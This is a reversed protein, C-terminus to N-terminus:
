EIGEQLIYSNETIRAGVGPVFGQVEVLKLMGIKGKISPPLTDTTYPASPTAATGMLSVHYTGDIIVVMLAESGKENRVAKLLPTLEAYAQQAIMTSDILPYTAGYNAVLDDRITTINDWVYKKLPTAIDQELNLLTRRRRSSIDEITSKAHTSQEFLVRELPKSFFNKEIVKVATDENSTENYQKRERKDKLAPSNFIMGTKATNYNYGTSIWGLTEGNEYVYLKAGRRKDDTSRPHLEFVMKWKPRRKALRTVVRALIPATVLTGLVDGKNVEVMINPHIGSPLYDYKANDMAM